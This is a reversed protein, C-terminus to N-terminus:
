RTVGSVAFNFFCFCIVALAFIIASVVFGVRPRRRAQPDFPSRAELIINVITKRLGIHPQQALSEEIWKQMEGPSVPVPM